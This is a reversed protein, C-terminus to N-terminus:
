MLRSSSAVRPPLRSAALAMSDPTMMMMGRGGRGLMVLRALIRTPQGAIVVEARVATQLEPAELASSLTDHEGVAAVGEREYMLWVKM